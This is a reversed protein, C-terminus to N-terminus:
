GRSPRGRRSRKTRRTRRKKKVRKKPPHSEAEMTAPKDDGLKYVTARKNGEKTLVGLDLGLKLPRPIERKDLGLAKRIEESRDRL